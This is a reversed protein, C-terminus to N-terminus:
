EASVVLQLKSKEIPLMRQMSPSARGLPTTMAQRGDRQLSSCVGLGAMCQQQSWRRSVTARKALIMTTPSAAHSTTSRSCAVDAGDVIVRVGSLHGKQRISRQINM